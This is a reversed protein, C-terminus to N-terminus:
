PTGEIDHSGHSSPPRSYLAGDTRTVTCNTGTSTMDEAVEDVQDISTVAGSLRRMATLFPTVPLSSPRVRCGSTAERGLYVLLPGYLVGM